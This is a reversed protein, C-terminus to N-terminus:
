CCGTESGMAGNGVCEARLSFTYYATKVATNVFTANVCYSVCFGVQSSRKQKFGASSEAAAMEGQQHDASSFTNLRVILGSNKM